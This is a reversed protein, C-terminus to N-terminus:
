SRVTARRRGGLAASALEAIRELVTRLDRLYNASKGTFGALYRDIEPQWTEPAALDAARLEERAKAIAEAEDHTRLNVYVREGNRRFRFWWTLRRLYLGEM